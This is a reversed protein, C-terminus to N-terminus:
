RYSARRPAGATNGAGALKLVLQEIAVPARSRGTKVAYDIGALQELLSGIQVLSIRRLQAFFRKQNGWIRLQSAVTRQPTGKELLSKANFMRRVHFAFAGVATYEANKDGEFMNRLREVARSANGEIVADIVEFAGYIRHHGILSEVHGATVTKEGRAYIVLKDVESYLQALEEGGLEVLMGAADRALRVKYKDLAYQTLHAPLERRKPPSADILKGVKPLKKALRTRADWTSVALVLVGTSSPKDFYRELAERHASVFRDAGRVAVVRRDTLFPVTRLEDLVGAIEAEAGDISLLGTMRQAPDLLADLLEQCRTGVLADDKGAIVYVREDM